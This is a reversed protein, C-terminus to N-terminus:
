IGHSKLGRAYLGYSLSIDANEQVQKLLYLLIEKISLFTSVGNHQCVPCTRPSFIRINMGTSTRLFIKLETQEKKQLNRLMAVFWFPVSFSKQFFSAIESFKEKTLM